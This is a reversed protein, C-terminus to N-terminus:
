ENEDGDDDSDAKHLAYSDAFDSHVSPGRLFFRLGPHVPPMRAEPRHGPGGGGGGGGSSVDEWAPSVAALRTYSRPPPPGWLSKCAVHDSSTANGPPAECFLDPWTWGELGAGERSYGGRWPPVVCPGKEKEASAQGPVLGPGWWGVMLTLRRRQKHQLGRGAFAHDGDGGDDAAAAAAAPLVGHLLGGNFAIVRNAM